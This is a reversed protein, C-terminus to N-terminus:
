NFDDVEYIHSYDFMMVRCRLRVSNKLHMKLEATWEDSTSRKIGVGEVNASKCRRETLHVKDDKCGRYESM